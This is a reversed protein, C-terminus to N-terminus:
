YFVTYQKLICTQRWFCADRGLKELQQTRHKLGHSNDVLIYYLYLQVASGKLLSLSSPKTSNHFFPSTALYNSVKRETLERSSLCHGSAANLLILHWITMPRMCSPPLHIMKIGPLTTGAASQSNSSFALFTFGLALRPIERVNHATTTTYQLVAFCSQLSAGPCWPTHSTLCSGASHGQLLLLSVM